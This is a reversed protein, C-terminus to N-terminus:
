VDRNKNRNRNNVANSLFCKGVMRKLVLGCPNMRDEKVTKQGM